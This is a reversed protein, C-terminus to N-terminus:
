SHPILFVSHLLRVADNALPRLKAAQAPTVLIGRDDAAAFAPLAALACFDRRTM